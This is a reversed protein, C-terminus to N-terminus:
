SSVSRVDEVFKECEPLWLDDPIDTRQSSLAFVYLKRVRAQVAEVLLKVNPQDIDPLEQGRLKRMALEEATEITGFLRVDELANWFATIKEVASEIVDAPLSRHRSRMDADLDAPLPRPSVEGGGSSFHQLIGGYGLDDFQSVRLNQDVRYVTNTIGYGYNRPVIAAIRSPWQKSAVFALTGAVTTDHLAFVSNGPTYVYEDALWGQPPADSRINRYTGLEPRPSVQANLSVYARQTYTQIDESGLREMFMRYILMHSPNMNEVSISTPHNSPAKPTLPLVEEVIRDFLTTVHEQRRQIERTLAQLVIAPDEM